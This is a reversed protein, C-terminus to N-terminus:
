PLRALLERAQAQSHLDGDEAVELLLTRATQADGLDLYAIALELREQGARPSWGADGAPAVASSAIDDSHSAEVSGHDIGDIAEPRAADAPAENEHADAPLDFVGRFQPQQEAHLAYDPVGTEVPTESAVLEDHVPEVVGASSTTVPEDWRPLDTVAEPLAVMGDDRLTGAQWDASVVPDVVTEAPAEPESAWAPMAPEQRGGDAVASSWSSQEALTDLAAGAPVAAALGAADDEERLPPLPSPK